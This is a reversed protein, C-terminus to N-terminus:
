IIWHWGATGYSIKHDAIEKLRKGFGVGLTRVSRYHHFAHRDRPIALRIVDGCQDGENRAGFCTRDIPRAQGDVTAGVGSGPLRNRRPAGIHRM